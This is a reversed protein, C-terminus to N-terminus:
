RPRPRPRGQPGRRREVGRNEVGRNELVRRFKEWQEGTLVSRMDVLLMLEREFLQGRAESLRAGARQIAQRDLQPQELEARLEVNRKEVDAKLDILTAASQNFTDDLRAQQERTIELREAVEARRWWKGGPLSQGFAATAALLLFATLILKKM